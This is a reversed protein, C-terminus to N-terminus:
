VRQHVALSGGRNMIREAIIKTVARTVTEDALLDRKEM